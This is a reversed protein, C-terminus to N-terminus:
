GARSSGRDTRRPWWVWILGVIWIVWLLAIEPLGIAFSGGLVGIIALLLIPVTLVLVSSAVKSRLARRTRAQQVETMVHVM